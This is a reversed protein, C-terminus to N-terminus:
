QCSYSAAETIAGGGKYSAKQPHPCVPMSVSADASKLLLSEPANKNEVWAVLAEFFQNSTPLPVRNADAAPGASGSVTGIGACHGMAPVFYLRNFKNTEAPGGVVDSVRTYYNLSGAPTILQDSLGHYSIIKAGKDRAPRLDPDDSNINGFASQLAIGRAYANALGSYSLQKWRNAGNGTANLFSPMAYSPDQLELAVMDTAIPFPNSGALAGLNTGRTLGWWLQSSALTASNGNDLAPDPASGDATQGYWIKNVVQAELLSVCSTTANSGVVGGNGQVGNCLAAADRTPDYRCQGPDAIFGLHAGGVGGVGGVTDCASVAAASLAALKAGAIPGGLEQQMAVQPNLESTIFKTWNFAPAGNLYGDYDEPHTQAIKYGQRGGTSCGNWYAYQQPKAYYAQVLAKTKLALEHLSREAFDTWLVTNITGDERMAFSGNAVTHGTDTTGVAYGTAATAAAASAQASLLTPSGHNGGQWGGGGLNQIRTNWNAATPLWIEMGIGPSTSPAGATGAHGPGVNLKVLCLDAPATAPAPTAATGSLALPDGAKYAKVQVVSTSADPKFAAKM